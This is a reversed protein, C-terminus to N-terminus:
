AARVKRCDSPTGPGAVEFVFQNRLRALLSQARRCAAALSPRDAREAADAIAQIERVVDAMLLPPGDKTAHTSMCM